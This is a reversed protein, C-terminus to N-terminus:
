EVQKIQAGFYNAVVFFNYPSNNWPVKFSLTLFFKTIWDCDKALIQFVAILKFFRLSLSCSKVPFLLGVWSLGKLKLFQDPFLPLNSFNTPSFLFIKWFHCFKEGVFIKGSLTGMEDNEGEACLAWKWFSSKQLGSAAWEGSYWLIM